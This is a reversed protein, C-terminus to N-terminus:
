DEQPPAALAQSLPIEIRPNETYLLETLKGTPDSQSYILANGDYPDILWAWQVGVQLYDAIRPVVRTTRDSPSLIEIALFPPSSPIARGIPTGPLWAAVDAVRLRRPTIQVRIETIVRWSLPLNRALWVQMDGHLIEGMNREIVEGDVYDCDAGEFSTRLYEEVSMLTKAPM